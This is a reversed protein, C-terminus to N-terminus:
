LDMGGEEGLDPPSSDMGGDDNGRGEVFQWPKDCLSLPPESPPAAVGPNARLLSYRILNEIKAEVKDRPPRRKYLLNLMVARPDDEEIRSVSSNSSTSSSRSISSSQSNMGGEEEEEEEDESEDSDMAVAEEENTSAPAPIVPVASFASSNSATASYDAGPITVTPPFGGPTANPPFSSGANPFPSSFVGTGAMPSVSSSTAGLFPPPIATAPVGAVVAAAPGPGRLGVREAEEGFRLGGMRRKIEHMERDEHLIHRKHTSPSTPSGRASPFSPPQQQM